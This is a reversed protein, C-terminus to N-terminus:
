CCRFISFIISDITFALPVLLSFELPNETPFVWCIGRGIGVFGTVEVRGVFAWVSDGIIGTRRCSDTRTLHIGCSVLAVSPLIRASFVPFLISYPSSLSKCKPQRQRNFQGAVARRELTQRQHQWRQRHLYHQQRQQQRQQQPQQHQEVGFGGAPSRQWIAAGAILGVDDMMWDDFDWNLDQDLDDFSWNWIWIWIWSILHDM